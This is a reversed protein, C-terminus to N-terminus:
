GHSSESRYNINKRYINYSIYGVLVTEEIIIQNQDQLKIMEGKIVQVREKEKEVAEKLENTEINLKEIECNKEKIEGRM